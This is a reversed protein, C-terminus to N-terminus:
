SGEEDPQQPQQSAAEVLPEPKPKDALLKDIEM